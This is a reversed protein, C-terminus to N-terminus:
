RSTLRGQVIASTPLTVIGFELSQQVYISPRPCAAPINYVTPYPNSEGRRSGKWEQIIRSEAVEGGEEDKEKAGGSSLNSSREGDPFLVGQMTTVADQLMDPPVHAYIELTIAVSSHGLLESVV